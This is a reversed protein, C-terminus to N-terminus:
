FILVQKAWGRTFGDPVADGDCLKINRKGNTYYHKKPSDKMKLKMRGLVFGNPLIDNEKVRLNINGNNYWKSKTTPNNELMWLSHKDRVTLGNEDPTLLLVFNVYHQRKDCEEQNNKVYEKNSDSIKKRIEPRKAPNNDGKLAAGNTQYKNLGTEEDVILMTNRTKEARIKNLNPNNELAKEYARQFGDRGDIISNRKTKTCEIAGLQYSTFGDKNPIKRLKALDLPDFIAPRRGNLSLHEKITKSIYEDEVTLVEKATQGIYIIETFWTEPYYMEDLLMSKVINSSTFYTKWFNEPNSSCKSYKSGYYFYGTDKHIIKYVYPNYNKM